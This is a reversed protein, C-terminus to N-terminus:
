LFTSSIIGVAQASNSAIIKMMAVPATIRFIAGCKFSLAVSGATIMIVSSKFLIMGKSEPCKPPAFSSATSIVDLIFSQTFKTVVALSWIFTSANSINALFLPKLM